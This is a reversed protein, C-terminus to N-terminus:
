NEEFRSIVGNAFRINLAFLKKIHAFKLDPNRTLARQM